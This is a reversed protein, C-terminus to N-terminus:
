KFFKDALIKDAYDNLKDGYSLLKSKLDEAEEYVANIQHAIACTNDYEHVVLKEELTADLFFVGNNASTLCPVGMAASEIIVNGWSESYALYANVSMKGLLNLFEMHELGNGTDVIRNPLNLYEFEKANMTHVRADKVMLAALVQSHKNKNFTRGTFIGINLGQLQQTNNPIVHPSKIIYRETNVGYIAKVAESLGIKNFGLGVIKNSKALEILKSFQNRKKVEHFESASGAYFLWINSFGFNNFYNVIDEFYMPFGRLVVYSFEAEVIAKCIETLEEPSYVPNSYYQDLVLTSSPFLALTGRKIGLWNGETNNGCIAITECSSRIIKIEQIVLEVSKKPHSNDGKLKHIIRNIM